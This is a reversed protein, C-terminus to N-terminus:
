PQAEKVSEGCQCKRFLKRVTLFRQIQPIFATPNENRKKNKNPNSAPQRQLTMTFEDRPMRMSRRRGLRPPTEYPRVRFIRIRNATQPQAPHEGVQPSGGQLHLLFPLM